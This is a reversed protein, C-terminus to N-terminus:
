MAGGIWTRVVQFNPTFAVLDAKFGAKIRGRDPLGLGNAPTLSAMVLADDLSAGMLNVANQVTEIMGIHAGALTGDALSLRKGDLRVPRGRLMFGSQDSGVSPMADTVLALRERGLLRYALKLNRPDVHLGDCIIGAMLRADDFTAGVLGPERPTIQSMANFLHTVGIAGAKVAAAVETATADSHGIFVKIGMACLTEILGPTACEPALTVILRGMSALRELLVLDHGDAQRIHEAPHAGKRAPNIFPGELHLGLVGPLALIEACAGVLRENVARADTILTPLLGTTGLRRHAAMIAAVGQADPQDNLLIGGGGNVQIDIFGPALITGPDLLVLDAKSDRASLKAAPELSLVRGGGLRLVVDDHWFEGDFLKPALIATECIQRDLSFGHM